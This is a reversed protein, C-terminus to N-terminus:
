TASGMKTAWSSERESNLVKDPSSVLYKMITLPAADGAIRQTFHEKMTRITASGGMVQKLVRSIENAKIIIFSGQPAAISTVSRLQLRNWL